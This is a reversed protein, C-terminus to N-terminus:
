GVMLMREIRLARAGMLWCCHVDTAVHRIGESVWVHTLYEAVVLVLM